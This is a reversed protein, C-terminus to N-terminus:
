RDVRMWMLLEGECTYTHKEMMQTHMHTANCSPWQLEAAGVSSCVLHGIDEHM